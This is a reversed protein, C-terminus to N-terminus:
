RGNSRRSPQLPRCMVDKACQSRSLRSPPPLAVSSADVTSFLFFPYLLLFPPQPQRWGSPSSKLSADLAAKSETVSAYVRPPTYNYEFPSQRDKTRAGSGRFCPPSPIWVPPQRSRKCRRPLNWRLMPLCRGRASSPVVPSTKGLCVPRSVHANIRALYSGSSQSPLSPSWRRSSLQEM